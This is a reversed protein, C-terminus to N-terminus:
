NAQPEAGTETGLTVLQLQGSRMADLWGEDLPDPRSPAFAAISGESFIGIRVPGPDNPWSDALLEGIRAGSKQIVLMAEATDADLELQAECPDVWGEGTLIHCTACAPGHYIAAVLLTGTRDIM